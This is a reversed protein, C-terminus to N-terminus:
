PGVHVFPAWFLPDGYRERLRWCALHVGRGAQGADTGKAALEAYVADVFRVAVPDLAAWQTGIVHRFGALQVASALTIAEDALDVGGRVTECASLVALRGHRIDRQALRRVTLPGDFMSLRGRSPALPDQEGHCALHVWDAEEMADLVTASVAQAGALVRARPLHAQVVEVERAAGPLPSQELTTPVSLSTPVSVILARPPATPAALAARAHLLARLTPTYSSAVRDLVAPVPDPDPETTQRSTQGDDPRTGPRAAHLPLFSLLGTPCWYVRPAERPLRARTMGLDRLVPEAVSEFLWNMTGGIPDEPPLVSDTVTEAAADAADAADVFAATYRAVEEASTELRVPRVGSLTVNLADCRYRSINILVVPGESAAHRLQAFRAPAVLDGLGAADIQELLADRESALMMRHEAAVPSFVADPDDGDGERESFEAMGRDLQANLGALQDALDPAAERLVSHPSRADIAQALLVGRGQELLEVARETDGRELAWAAADSAAAGFRRLLEEQDARPLGHWALRGLLEVVAAFGEDALRAQGIEAALRGANVAATARILTPATRVRAAALFAQAAARAQEEDGELRFRTRLITGLNFGFAAQNPHDPGLGDAARQLLDIAADADAADKDLDFRQRLANALNSQFSAQNVDDPGAADLAARLTEAAEDLTSRDHGAQWARLLAVGLGSLRVARWPQEPATDAVAERHATVGDDLDQERGAHIYRAVLLTGLGSLRLGRAAHGPPTASVAGRATAIAEDLSERHRVREFRRMLAGALNSSRMAFSPDGPPTAAVAARLLGIAGDLADPDGTLEFDRTLAEGLGSQVVPRNRHGDPLATLAARLAGIAERLDERNGLRTFSTSLATGLNLLHSGRSTSRAPTLTVAQRMARVAELLADDDGTMEHLRVLSNALNSLCRATDPSQEGALAVAQRHAAIALDLAGRHGGLDFRAQHTNGLNTLYVHRDPYGPPVLEFARQQFGAAEVLLETEGTRNAQEALANGLNSLLDPDEGPTAALARRFAAVADLGSAPDNRLRAREGLARGLNLLYTPLRPDTHTTAACGAELLTIAEDLVEAAGSAIFLDTLATALNSADAPWRSSTPEVAELASRFARVAADLATPDGTREFKLHRAMGTMSLCLVEAEPDDRLGALTRELLALAEDARRPDGSEQAQGLLRAAARLEDDVADSM